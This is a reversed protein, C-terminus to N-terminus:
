RGSGLGKLLDDLGSGPIGIKSSKTEVFLEYLNPAGYKDCLAEVLGNANDVVADITKYSEGQMTLLETLASETDTGAKAIAGFLKHTAEMNAVLASNYKDAIPLCESPPPLKQFDSILDRFEKDVSNVKKIAKDARAKNLAEIDSDPDAIQELDSNQFGTAFSMLAPLYRNQMAVRADDVRKLHELWLRVDDPLAGTTAKLKNSESDVAGSKNLTAIGQNGGVKLYGGYAAILTLLVVVLGGILYPLWKKQWSVPASPLGCQICFPANEALPTQCKPCVAMDDMKVADPM